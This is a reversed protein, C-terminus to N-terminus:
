AKRGSGKKGKDRVREKAPDSADAVSGHRVTGQGDEHKPDIVARSADRRRLRQEYWNTIADVGPKLPRTEDDLIGAVLETITIRLAGAIRECRDKIEPPFDGCYLAPHKDKQAM